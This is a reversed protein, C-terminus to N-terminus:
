LEEIGNIPNSIYQGSTIRKILTKYRGITARLSLWFVPKQKVYRLSLSVEFKELDKAIDVIEYVALEESERNKIRTKPAAYVFDTIELDRFSWNVSRQVIDSVNSSLSMITNSKAVAESETYLGTKFTKSKLKKYTDFATEEFDTNAYQRTYKDQQGDFSYEVIASTLYQSGSNKTKPEGTWDDWLITTEPERDEDYLRINYKGNSQIYFRLDCDFCVQEIVKNLSKDDDIFVSTNRCDAEASNVDAVDWFSVVFPKTDYNEMLDKIIDVGNSLPMTFSAYLETESTVATFTGSNLDVASTSVTSGDKDVVSDLSSPTNYLTDVFLFEKPSSTDDVCICKRHFVKGYAIPKPLDISDDPANPFESTTIYNTAIPQNLKKREDGLSVSFDKWTTDDNSIFGSYIEEFDTYGTPNEAYLFRAATNFLNRERWDDFEGDANELKVTANNYKLKGFFLPDVSNKVKPLNKLREEYIRGEYANDNSSNFKNSFGLVVGIVVEKGLQREENVFHIYIRQTSGDFFFSKEATQCDSINETKAYDEKDVQVSLVNQYGTFQYDIFGQIGYYDTIVDIPNYLVKFQVGHSYAYFESSYQQDGIEFLIQRKDAV